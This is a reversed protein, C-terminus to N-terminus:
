LLAGVVKCMVAHLVTLLREQHTQVNPGYEGSMVVSVCPLALSAERNFYRTKIWLLLTLAHRLLDVYRQLLENTAQLNVSRAAIM